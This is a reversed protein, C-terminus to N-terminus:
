AAGERRGSDRRQAEEVAIWLVLGGTAWMPSFLLIEWDATTEASGVSSAKM